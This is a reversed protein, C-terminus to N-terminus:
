SKMQVIKLDNKLTTECQRMDNYNHVAGQQRVNEIAEYSLDATIISINDQKGQALIGDDPFGIDAPGFVAARGHTRQGSTSLDDIGVCPSVAVLCQNEIARARCSQFVRNFGAMTTTYSPVLILKAGAKVLQRVILPFESDYCIAIGIDGAPTKFLTQSHGQHMINFGKETQTLQLKDQYGYSGDPSFFYARNVYCNTGFEVPLTGPQIYLRYQKALGSFFELYQTLLRQVASFEQEVTEFQSCLMEMGAYEPMLFIQANSQNASVLLSRIKMDYHNWDRLEEIRYQSIAIKVM